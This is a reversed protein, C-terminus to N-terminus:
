QVLHSRMLCMTDVGRQGARRVAMLCNSAAVRSQTRVATEQYSNGEPLTRGEVTEALPLGEKNSPKMLVIVSDSKEDVYMNM